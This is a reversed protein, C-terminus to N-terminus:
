PKEREWLDPSRAMPDLWLSRTGFAIAIAVIDLVAAAAFLVAGGFEEMLQGGFITGLTSGAALVGASFLGQVTGRRELTVFRGLHELAAAYWLGFSFFHFVQLTILTAPDSVLSTGLWRLSSGLLAVVIWRHSPWVRFLRSAIMLAAVEGVISLGMAFGPVQNPHGLAKTHLSFFANYSAVGAWHLGNWLIFVALGATLPASRPKSADVPKRTESPLALALFLAVATAVLYSSLAREGAAAYELDRAFWGFLAATAGFGLSGWLRVSGYDEPGVTRIATADMLPVIPARLAAQGWIILAVTTFDVAAFLAIGALVQSTFAVRLLTYPIAREDSLRTLVPQFLVTIVTRGSLLIGIEAAGIGLTQFHYPLFAFEIAVSAFYAAYLIALLAGM